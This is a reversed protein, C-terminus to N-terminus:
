RRLLWDADPQERHVHSRLASPAREFLMRAERSFHAQDAYGHALAAELVSADADRMALMADEARLMREVEGPRLGTFAHARRRLHRPTWGLAQALAHRAGRDWRAHLVKLWAPHARAVAAWRPALFAGCLAMRTGHSPAAHVAEMWDIWDAREPGPPLWDRADAVRDTLPQLDQGTLLALAGPQFALCFFDGGTESTSHYAHRHAGSVALRPLWQDARQGGCEHLHVAGRVLWLFGPYPSAPVRTDRPVTAPLAALNRWIYARVCDALAPPPAQLASAPQEM